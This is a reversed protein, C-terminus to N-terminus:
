GVDVLHISGLTLPVPLRHEKILESTRFNYISVKDSFLFYVLSSLSDVQIGHVDTAEHHPLRRSTTSFRKLKWNDRTKRRDRLEQWFSSINPSSIGENKIIENILVIRGIKESTRFNSWAKCCSMLSIIDALSAFQAITTIADENLQAM